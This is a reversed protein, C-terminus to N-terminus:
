CLCETVFKLVHVVPKRLFNEQIVKEKHTKNFGKIDSTELKM